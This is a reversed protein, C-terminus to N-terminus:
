CINESERKNLYENLVERSYYYGRERFRNWAVVTPIIMLYYRWDSFHYAIAIITVFFLTTLLVRSFAYQANFDPVRSDQNGNTKRMACGFMQRTNANPNDLDEKLYAIAKEAEYFRVRYIGAYKKNPDISLLKDSPMGGITWYWFNELLSSVANILYGVVYAAAIYAISNDENYDIGAFFLVAMIAFYGVIITSLLDYYKFEM